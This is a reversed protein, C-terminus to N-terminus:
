HELFLHIRKRFQQYIRTITAFFSRKKYKQLNKQVPSQAQFMSKPLHFGHAELRAIINPRKASQKWRSTIKGQQSKGTIELAFLDNLVYEGQEVGQVETIYTVKRQGDDLRSQQIILDIGTAILRRVYAEPVGPNNFLIMMELRALADSPTNAHMLVMSGDHGEAILRMTDLAEIGSLDGIILREPRMQAAAQLLDRKSIAGTGARDPSRTELRVVHEKPIQLQSIEEITVIREDDPIFSSIIELLTMKGAGTGGSILVSLRSIVCARTFEAMEPTLSGFRVLDNMSLKNKAIKRVTISPGDLAIPPLVVQIWATNPIVASAIPNTLDVKHGIPLLLRHVIQMLHESDDFQLDLKRLQGRQEVYIAHPGNVMIESVTNDHLLPQLISFGFIEDVIQISIEGQIEDSLSLGQDQLTAQIYARIAKGLAHRNKIDYGLRTAFRETVAGGGETGIVPDNLPDYFATALDLETLWQRVITVVLSRLQRQEAGNTEDPIQM